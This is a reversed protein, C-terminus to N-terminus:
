LQWELDTESGVGCAKESAVRSGKWFGYGPGRCGCMKEPDSSSLFSVSVTRKTPPLKVLPMPGSHARSPSAWSLREQSANDLGPALPLSPM